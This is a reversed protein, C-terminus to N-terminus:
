DNDAKSFLSICKKSWSLIYGLLITYFTITTVKFPFDTLLSFDFRLFNIMLRGIEIPFQVIEEWNFLLQFVIFYGFVTYNFIGYALIFLERKSKIRERIPNTIWKKLLLGSHLHLNPTSTIDSLLWYGDSRIFPILQVLSYIAILYAMEEFGPLDTFCFVMYFISMCLLQIYVGALNGIVRQERNCHWLPSINSYLVPFIFYIGAGIEGNRGSFKKCAAIHGLEHLFITPFYMLMILGIPLIEQTTNNATFLIYLAFGLTSLLIMWFLKPVFLIEFPKALCSAITSPLLSFQFKIFSKEKGWSIEGKNLLQMKDLAEKIFPYFEDETLDENFEMNFIIQAEKITSTTSVIDILKKTYESVIFHREQLEVIWSDKQYPSLIFDTRIISM